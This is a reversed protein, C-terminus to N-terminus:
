AVAGGSLASWGHMRKNARLRVMIGWSTDSSHWACLKPKMLIPFSTLILPMKVMEVMRAMEVTKGTKRCLFHKVAASVESMVFAKVEEVTVSSGDKGDRGDKGDLPKPLASIAM